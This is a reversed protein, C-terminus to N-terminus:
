LCEGTNWGLASSGLVGQLNSRDANKEESALDASWGLNMERRALRQVDYVLTLKSNEVRYFNSNDSRFM